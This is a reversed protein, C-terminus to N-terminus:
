AYLYANELVKTLSSKLFLTGLSHVLEKLYINLFIYRKPKSTRPRKRKETEGDKKEGAFPTWVPDQDSDYLDSDSEEGLKRIPKLTDSDSDSDVM